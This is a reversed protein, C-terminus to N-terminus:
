TKSVDGGEDESGASGGSGNHIGPEDEEVDGCGDLGDDDSEAANSNSVVEANIDSYMVEHKFNEATSRLQNLFDTLKRFIRPADRSGFLLLLVLMVVVMEGGGPGIFALNLFGNFM